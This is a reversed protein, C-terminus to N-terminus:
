RPTSAISNTCDYSLKWDLMRLRGSLEIRELASELVVQLLHHALRLLQMMARCPQCDALSISFCTLLPLSTFDLLPIARIQVRHHRAYADLWLPACIDRILLPWCVLYADRIKNQECTQHSERASVRCSAITSHHISQLTWLNQRCLSVEVSASTTIFSDQNHLVGRVPHDFLM